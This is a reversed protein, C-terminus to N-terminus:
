AVSRLHGSRLLELSLTLGFLQHTTGAAEGAPTVLLDSGHGDPLRRRSTLALVVGTPDIVHLGALGDARVLMQVAGFNDRVVGIHERTMPEASSFTAITRNAHDVLAVRTHGDVSGAVVSLLAPGASDEYLDWCHERWVATAAVRHDHVWRLRGAAAGLHYTGAPIM